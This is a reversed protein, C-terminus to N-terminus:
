CNLRKRYLKGKIAKVPITYLTLSPYYDDISEIFDYEREYNDVNLDSMMKVQAIYSEKRKFHLFIVVISLILVLSKILNKM